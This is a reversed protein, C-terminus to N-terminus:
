VTGLSCGQYFQPVLIAQQRMIAYYKMTDSAAGKITGGQHQM